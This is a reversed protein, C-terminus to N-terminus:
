LARSRGVRYAGSRGPTLDAVFADASPAPAASPAAALGGILVLKGDVVSLTHGSRRTTPAGSSAVPAWTTGSDEM